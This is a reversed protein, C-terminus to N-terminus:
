SFRINLDFSGDAGGAYASDSQQWIQYSHIYQPLLNDVTYSAMWLPLRSFPLSDLDFRVYGESAYIGCQYGASEVADCFATAIDARKGPSLTDARGHPYNGSYEMDIFLPLDLEFGNLISIASAAEEIAEAHNIATSYFYAGVELGADHANRLNAQTQSDDYLNCTIGWGRGGLRVLVFDFGQSKLAYYDVQNNYYSVDLGIKEAERGNQDFYKLTGGVNMLDAYASARFFLALALILCFSIIRKM